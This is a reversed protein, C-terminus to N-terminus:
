SPTTTLTRRREVLIDLRKVYKEIAHDGFAPSINRRWSRPLPTLLVSLLLGTAAIVWQQILGRARRRLIPKDFDRGDIHRTDGIHRYMLLYFPVFPVIDWGNTVRYHPPKVYQDLSRAGARPSGFTYCAAIRDSTFAATALQALAGGLSHGTIFIPKKVPEPLNKLVDIDPEIQARRQDFAKYFGSHVKVYNEEGDYYGVFINKKNINFNTSWDTGDTTGRFVLVAMKENEALYAETGRNRMLAAFRKRPLPKAYANTLTFGLADLAARLDREGDDTEFPLYSLMCLRALLAAARDSYAARLSPLDKYQMPESTESM